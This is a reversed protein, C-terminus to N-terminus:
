DAGEHLNGEVASEDDFYGSTRLVRRRQSIRRRFVDRCAKCNEIHARAARNLSGAIDPHHLIRIHPGISRVIIRPLIGDAIELAKAKDKCSM